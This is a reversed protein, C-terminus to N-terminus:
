NKQLDAKIVKEVVNEMPRVSLIAYKGTSGNPTYNWGQTIGVLRGDPSLMPGGSDGARLPVTSDILIGSDHSEISKIQGATFLRDGGFTKDNKDFVVAFVIDEIKPEPAITFPFPLKAEVKIVAYDCKESADSQYIVRTRKVALGGGFDGIVYNYSSLVHRATLLYGTRDIAVALAQSFRKTGSFEAQIDGTTADVTIYKFDDDISLLYYVGNLVVTQDVILLHRYKALADSREQNTAHPASVCGVLAVFCLASFIAIKRM